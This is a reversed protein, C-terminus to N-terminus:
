KLNKFYDQYERDLADLDGFCREAAERGGEGQVELTFYGFFAQRYRKDEHKLLFYVLAWSQAATDQIYTRKRPDARERAYQLFSVDMFDRLKKQKGSSIMRRVYPMYEASREGLVFGGKVDRKFCEFYASLGESFWAMESDILKRRDDLRSGSIAHVVAHTCLHFLTEYLQITDKYLHIEGTRNDFHGGAWPTPNSISHYRESSEFIYVLTADDAAHASADFLSGYEGCFIGYFTNVVDKFDRLMLEASYADSKEMCLLFPSNPSCDLWVRSDEPRNGLISCEWTLVAVKRERASLASEELRKSKLWDAWPLRGTARAEADREKEVVERAVADDPRLKLIEQALALAEEHLAAKELWRVVLQLNEPDVGAAPLKTDRYIVRLRARARSHNRDLKVTKVYYQEAAELDGLKECIEAYEFAASPSDDAYRRLRERLAATDDLPAPAQPPPRDPVFLVIGVIVLGPLALCLILTRLRRNMRFGHYRM